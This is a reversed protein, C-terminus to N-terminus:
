SKQGLIELLIKEGFFETQQYKGRFIEKWGLDKKGSTKRGTHNDM